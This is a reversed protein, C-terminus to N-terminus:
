FWKDNGYGRFTCLFLEKSKCNVYEQDAYNSTPDAIYEDLPKFPDPINEVRGVYEYDPHYIAGCRPCLLFEFKVEATNYSCLILNSKTCNLCKIHTM